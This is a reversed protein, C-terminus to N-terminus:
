SAPGGRHLRASAAHLPPRVRQARRLQQVSRRHAHRRGSRLRHDSERRGIRFADGLRPRWINNRLNVLMDRLWIDPAQVQEQGAPPQWLDLSTVPLMGYPQRGCRLIPYPGGSRVYSVFHNRAWSLLGPTLGTGDFGVMNTLYYGWGVQWLAVNMSRMHLDHQDYALGIRGLVPAISAAPLGLAAGVRVANSQANLRSPDSAVEDAFSRTHAPDDRSAAARRDDTNNTPTGFRLFELGDTYHHANLLNALSAAAVDGGVSTAVGFVVLRDLGASLAVPPVTIRVAMGKAEAEDFDIMWKMGADVALQDAPPNPAPLAPNPGVPLPRVINSGTVSVTTAGARLVAIWRDPMLRAVPAHRWAADRGDAVVTVAPFQPAVPLQQSAPVTAAPRQQPNIPQLARSIWAAREAGFRVALQRWATARVTQNNGARWDQEWYHMGWEQETPLLDPEHTDFHIKDPYIRVRLETVDGPLSFFRTELRVPLLALPLDSRCLVPAPNAAAVAPSASTATVSDSM